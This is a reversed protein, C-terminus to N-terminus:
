KMGGLVRFGASVLADLFQKETHIKKMTELSRIMDYCRKIATDYDQDIMKGEVDIMLDRVCQMEKAMESYYRKEYSNM